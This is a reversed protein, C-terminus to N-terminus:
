AHATSLRRDPVVRREVSPFSAKARSRLSLGFGLLLAGSVIAYIGVYMAMALGGQVPYMFVLVGFVLAVLGSLALLWEHRVLKRLRIAAAIDLVGSVMAYAGIMLVLVLATLAPHVMAIVGAGIAVLGLMLAIWWDPDHSAREQFSGVVMVIGSILAFGAFLVTFALLTLDPRSLAMVGFIIAIVGRLATLRWAKKLMENM